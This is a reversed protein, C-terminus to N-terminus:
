EAHPSKPSGEVLDSWCRETLAAQALHTVACAVRKSYLPQSGSPLMTQRDEDTVGVEAAVKDRLEAAQHPQGDRHIALVPRMLSQLDPIV